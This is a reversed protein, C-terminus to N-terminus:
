RRASSRRRGICRREQDRHPPHGEQLTGTHGECARPGRERSLRPAPEPEDNDHAFTASFPQYPPRSKYDGTERLLREAENFEDNLRRQDGESLYGYRQERAM